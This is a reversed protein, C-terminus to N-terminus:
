KPKNTIAEKSCTAGIYKQKATMQTTQKNGGIGSTIALDSVIENDSIKKMTGKVSGRQDKCVTEYSILDSKKELIKVDCGTEKEKERMKEINTMDPTICIKAKPVSIGAPMGQMKTEVEWEGPKMEFATAPATIFGLLFLAPIFRQIFM